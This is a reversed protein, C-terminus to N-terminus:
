DNGGNEEPLASIYRRRAAEVDAVDVDLPSSPQVVEIRHDNTFGQSSNLLLFISVSADAAGRDAAAIRIATSTTRFQELFKASEEDPHDAMFMYIWRRSVGLSAALGEMSPIVGIGSCSNLYESAVQKVVATDYLNTRVSCKELLESTGAVIESITTAKALQTQNADYGAM